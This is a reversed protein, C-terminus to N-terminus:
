LLISGYIFFISRLTKLAHMAQATVWPCFGLQSFEPDQSKAADLTAPDKARNSMGLVLGGWWFFLFFCFCFVHEIM